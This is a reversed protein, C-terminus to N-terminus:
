RRGRGGSFRARASCNSRLGKSVSATSLRYLGRVIGEEVGEPMDPHVHNENMTTIYYLCNEGEEFMRRMGDQIIVALEYSYTPDYSICNPVTAAM